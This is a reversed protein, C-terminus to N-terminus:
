ERGHRVCVIVHQLSGILMGTGIFVGLGLLLGLGVRKWSPTSESSRNHLPVLTEGDVRLASLYPRPNNASLGSDVVITAQKGILSPIPQKPAPGGPEGFRSRDQDSLSLASVLFGRDEGAIRVQLYWAPGGGVASQRWGAWEIQGDVTVHHDSQSTEEDTWRTYLGYGCGFALGAGVIIGAVAFPLLAFPDDSPNTIL